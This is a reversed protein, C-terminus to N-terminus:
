KYLMVFAHMIFASDITLNIFLCMCPYIVTMVKKLFYFGSFKLSQEKYVNSLIEKVCALEVM